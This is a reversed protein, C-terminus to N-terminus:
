NARVVISSCVLRWDLMSKLLSFVMGPNIPWPFRDLVGVTMLMPTESLSDLYSNLSLYGISRGLCLEIILFISSAYVGVMFRLFKFISSSGSGRSATLSICRYSASCIYCICFMNMFLNLFSLCFFLIRKVYVYYFPLGSVFMSAIVAPESGDRLM